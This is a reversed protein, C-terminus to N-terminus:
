GNRVLLAYGPFPFAGHIGYVGRQAYLAAGAEHPWPPAHIVIFDPEYSELWEAFRREGLSEANKPSVLGLVDVVRRECYFGIVGVEVMAVTAELPTNQELWQGIQRYEVQRKSESVPSAHTAYASWGLIGLALVVTVTRGIATLAPVKLRGAREFLLAAGLGAYICGFCYFPAYYWHYNPVNLAVYFVGLAALFSLVVFNLDSKGLRFIGLVALVAFAVFLVTSNGFYEVQYGAGLFIPWEGWLGSRGQDMKAMLTHPLFSGYYLKAFVFNSGILLAPVVFDRVRPLPRRRLLHVGALALVLFLGEGRTLLLLAGAIGLWGLRRREYLWLCLVALFLFLPTEMGYLSYFYRSGAVLATGLVVFPWRQEVKSYVAYLVIAAGALLIGSQAIMPYRISGFLGCVALSVYAYLPSTLANFYEGVNYVLGNGELFNRFYRYYILADDLEYDRNLISFYAVVSIVISNAVLVLVVPSGWKRPTVTTEAPAAGRTTQRPGQKRRARKSTQRTV